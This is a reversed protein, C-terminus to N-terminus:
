DTVHLLAVSRSSGEWNICHIVMQNDVSLCVATSRMSSAEWPFLFLVIVPVTVSKHQHAVKKTDTLHSTVGAIM